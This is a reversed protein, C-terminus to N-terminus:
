EKFWSWNRKSLNIETETGPATTESITGDAVRPDWRAIKFENLMTPCTKAFTQTPSPKPFTQSKSGLYWIRDPTTVPLTATINDNKMM